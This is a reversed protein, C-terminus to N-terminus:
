KEGDKLKKNRKKLAGNKLKELRLEHNLFDIELELTNIIRIYPHVLTKVIELIKELFKM